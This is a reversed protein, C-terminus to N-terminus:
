KPRIKAKADTRKLRGRKAEVKSRTDPTQRLIELTPSNHLPDRLDKVNKSEKRGKWKM